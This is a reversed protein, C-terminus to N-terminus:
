IGPHPDRGADRTVAPPPDWEGSLEALPVSRERGDVMDRLRVTEQVAETEGVIAVRRYGERDAYALSARLPRGTVDLDASRGSERVRRAVRLAYGVLDPAGAVVFVDAAPAPPCSRGESALALGVREVGFAFGSAPISQRGGLARFLDDYRGGGCVQSEGGLGGHHIEFVMGTYYQLGRSLGLDVQLHEVGAGFDPLYEITRELDQLPEASLGFAELLDRGASLAAPPTGRV